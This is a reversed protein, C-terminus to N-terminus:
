RSYDDELRVIDSEDCITGRQLELIVLLEAGDNELRHHVMRPIQVHAGPSILRWDAGVFVRGTGSIVSWEELRHHHYQLSLRHGPQVEIKKICFGPGSDLVTWRGWPREGIESVTYGSAISLSAVSSM